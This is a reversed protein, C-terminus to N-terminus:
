QHFAGPVVTMARKRAFREIAAALILGLPGDVHRILGHGPKVFPIPMQDIPALHGRFDAHGQRPFQRPEDPGYPMFMSIALRTLGRSLVPKEDFCDLNNPIMQPNFM